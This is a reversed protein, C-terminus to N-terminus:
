SLAEILQDKNMRSYGEVQKEKALEKLEKATLESLGQSETQDGQDDAPPDQPKSKESVAKAAGIRIFVSALEDGMTYKQDKEYTKVPMAIGKKDRDSGDIEYIMQVKM